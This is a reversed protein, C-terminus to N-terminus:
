NLVTKRNIAYQYIFFTSVAAMLHKASHGSYTIFDFIEGDYAELGKAIAYAIFAMILSKINQRKSSFLLILLIFLMPFFQVFIYPRLDGAGMNETIIWYIIAIIGGPFFVLWTKFGSNSDIHDYVILAFLNTFVITMPLRDWFLSFNSPSYHFFASGIGTLGIGIFLIWTIFEETRSQRRKMRLMNMIGLFSVILFPLNSLVNHFNPIGWIEVNDAFILYIPDQPVRNSFCLGVVALSALLFYIRKLWIKSMSRKM